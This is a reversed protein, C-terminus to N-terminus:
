TTRPRPRYVSVTFLPTLSVERFNRCGGQLRLAHRARHRQIQLRAPRAAPAPGRPRACQRRRCLPRDPWPPPCCSWPMTHGCRPVFGGIDGCYGGPPQLPSQIGPGTYGGVTGPSLSSPGSGGGSSSLPPPPPPAVGVGGSSGLSM